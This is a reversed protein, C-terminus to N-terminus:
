MLVIVFAAVAFFGVSRSVVGSYCNYSGETNSCFPKKKPCDYTNEICENIDNCKYGGWTNECRFGSGCNDTGRVCEDVDACYLPDSGDGSDGSTEYSKDRCQCHYGCWTDHCKFSPPCAHTGLACEDVGAFCQRDRAGFGIMLSGCLLVVFGFGILFVRSGTTSFDGCIGNACFLIGPVLFLVVGCVILAVSQESYGDRNVCASIDRAPVMYDYHLSSRTCRCQNPETINPGYGSAEGINAAQLWSPCKYTGDNQLQGLISYPIKVCDSGKRMHGPACSCTYGSGPSTINTVCVEKSSCSHTGDACDDRVRCTHGSTAHNFVCVENSRCNHTGAVCVNRLRCTHGSTINFVCVEDSRCNHTGAACVDYRTCNVTPSGLFGNSCQCDFTKRDNRSCVANRACNHRGTACADILMGIPPTTSPLCCCVGVDESHSCDHSGWGNHSCSGIWGSYDTPCSVSDLWIQGSGGGSSFAKGRHSGLYSCVASAENDSFDDDCVTGWSGSYFIEVRCVGNSNCSALRLNNANGPPTPNCSCATNTSASRACVSASGNGYAVFGSACSCSSGPPGSGVDTFNAACTCNFSGPTDACVANIHCNHTGDICENVNVCVSANGSGSLRYGAPCTCTTGDGLFGPPCSCTFSGSTDTCAANIHCNHTGDICENVNVCVSANGSGSVRYGINPCTCNRGDGLFGSRCSCIFSGSTDTCAANIHCNHTGDICENVNVCVSANGSGSPRYGTPCTCTTGDGLFGPPCSCTFSQPTNTCVGNVHCNHTGDSCEDIIECVSAAGLGSVRYGISCTCTTGDGLFGPPCSCTFSGSTDTCAANIHCNHTGVSCENVNVCSDNSISRLFGSPCTCVADSPFASTTACICVFGTDLDVCQSTSHCNHTGISCENIPLCAIVSASNYDFVPQKGFDCFCKRGNYVSNVCRVDPYDCLNGSACENVDMFEKFGSSSFANQHGLVALSTAILVFITIRLMYTFVDQPFLYTRFNVMIEDVVLHATQMRKREKDFKTEDKMQGPQTQKKADETSPHIRRGRRGGLTRIKKLSIIIMRMTSMCLSIVRSRGSAGSAGLLTTYYLQLVFGPFDEVFGALASFLMRRRLALHQHTPRTEKNAYLILGAEPNTIAACTCLLEMGIMSVVSVIMWCSAATFMFLFSVLRVFAVFSISTTNVLTALFSAMASAICAIFCRICQAVSLCLALLSFGALTISSVICVASSFITFVLARIPYFILATCFMVFPLAACVSFPSGDFSVRHSSAHLGHLNFLARPSDELWHDGLHDVHEVRFGVLHRGYVYFLGTAYKVVNCYSIFIGNLFFDKFTVDDSLYCVIFIVPAGLLFLCVRLLLMLLHAVAFSFSLLVHLSPFLIWLPLIIFTFTFFSRADNEEDGWYNEYWWVHFRSGLSFNVPDYFVSDVSDDDPDEFVVKKQEINFFDRIPELVPELFGFYQENPDKSDNKAHSFTVLMCPNLHGVLWKSMKSLPLWGWKNLNLEPIAQNHGVMSLTAVCAIFRLGAFIAAVFTKLSVLFYDLGSLFSLSWDKSEFALIKSEFHWVFLDPAVFFPFLPDFKGFLKLFSFPNEIILQNFIKSVFALYDPVVLPGADPSQTADEHQTTTMLVRLSFVSYNGATTFASSLVLFTLMSPYFTHFPSSSPLSQQQFQYAEFCFLVDFFFDIASWMIYWIFFSLFESRKEKMTMFAWRSRNKYDLGRVILFQDETFGAIDNLVQDDLLSRDQFMLNVKEPKGVADSIGHSSILRNKVDLVTSFADMDMQFVKHSGTVSHISVKMAHSIFFKM